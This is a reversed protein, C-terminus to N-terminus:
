MSEGGGLSSIAVFFTAKLSLMARRLDSHFTAPNKKTELAPWAIVLPACRCHRCRGLDRAAKALSVLRAMATYLRRWTEGDHSLLDGQEDCWFDVVFM